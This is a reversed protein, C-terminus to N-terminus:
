TYTLLTLSGSCHSNTYEKYQDENEKFENGAVEPSVTLANKLILNKPETTLFGVSNSEYIQM